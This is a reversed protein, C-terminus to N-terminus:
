RHVRRSDCQLGTGLSLSHPVLSRVPATEVSGRFGGHTLTHNGSDWQGGPFVQARPSASHEGPRGEGGRGGRLRMLQWVARGPVQWPGSRGEGGWSGLGPLPRPVPCGPTHIWSNSAVAPQMLSQPSLSLQSQGEGGGVGHLTQSQIFMSLVGKLELGLSSTDGGEKRGEQIGPDQSEQSGKNLVRLPPVM